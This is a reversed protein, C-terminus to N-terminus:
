FTYGIAEFVQHTKDMKRGESTNVIHQEYLARLKTKHKSKNAGQIGHLLTREIAGYTQGLQTLYNLTNATITDQPTLGDNDTARTRTTPQLHAKLATTMIAEYTHQELSVINHLTTDTVKYRKWHKRNKVTTEIRWYDQEVNIGYYDAFSASKSQLDCWKSYIKLYPQSMYKDTRRDNWQIGQNLKQEWVTAARGEKREKAQDRLKGVIAVGEPNSFDKKIDTDTCEAKLLAEYPFSVLGTGIIYDYAAQLNTSNLGQLYQGKIMKATVVFTLFDKTTQDATIQKEIAFRTKIGNVEHTYNKADHDISEGTESNVLYWVASIKPDIYDAQDIPIRVKTSDISYNM